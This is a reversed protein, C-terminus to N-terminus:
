WNAVEPKENDNAPKADAGYSYLDFEGHQGPSRYIYPHGWPDKLAGAKKLYPGNWNDAGPPSKMLADLGEATSPYQGVDSKYLDLAAGINSVETRATKVRGSEIYRIVYPTAMMTLLGLITLVVLLELLTYGGDRKLKDLLTKKM